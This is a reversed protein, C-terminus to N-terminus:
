VGSFSTKRPSISKAKSVNSFTDLFVSGSFVLPCSISFLLRLKPDTHSCGPSIQGFVLALGAGAQAIKMLEGGRKGKVKVGNQLKGSHHDQRPM